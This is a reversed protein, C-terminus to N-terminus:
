SKGSGAAWVSIGNSSLFEVISKLYNRGVVILPIKITKGNCLNVEIRYKTTRVNQIDKLDISKSRVFPNSYLVLHDDKIALLPIFFARVLAFLFVVTFLPFIVVTITHVRDPQSGSLANLLFTVFLIGLFVKEFIPRKLELSM